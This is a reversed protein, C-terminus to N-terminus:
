GRSIALVRLRSRACSPAFRSEGRGSGRERKPVRPWRLTVRLLSVASAGAAGSIEKDALSLSRLRLRPNSTAPPLARGQRQLTTESTRASFFLLLLLFFLAPPGAAPRRDKVTVM